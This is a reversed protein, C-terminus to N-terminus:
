TEAMNAALNCDTIGFGLDIQSPNPLPEAPAFTQLKGFGHNTVATKSFSIVQLFDRIKKWYSTFSSRQSFM